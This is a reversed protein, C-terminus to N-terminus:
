VHSRSLLYYSLATISPGDVIDGELIMQRLTDHSVFETAIIDEGVETHDGVHTLSQAIITFYRISERGVNSYFDGVIQLSDARYGTEEELERNAAHLIDESIQASGAPLEWIDHRVQQRYEKILLVKEEKEAIVFVGAEDRTVIFYDIHAGHVDVSEREVRYFPNQHVVESQIIPYKSPLSNRDLTKM